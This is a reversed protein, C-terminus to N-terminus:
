REKGVVLVACTGTPAKEDIMYQVNVGAEQAVKTMQEGFKDKGICGCFTAVGKEQLMWSIVRLTNQAQGGCIYNM